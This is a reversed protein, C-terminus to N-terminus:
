GLMWIAAGIITAFAIWFLPLANASRTMSAPRSTATAAVYRESAHPSTQKRVLAEFEEDTM